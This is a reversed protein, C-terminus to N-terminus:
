AQPTLDLDVAGNLSHKAMAEIVTTGFGRRKPMSVPPGDLETWSM